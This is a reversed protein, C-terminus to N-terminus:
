KTHTLNLGHIQLCNSASRFSLIVHALWSRQTDSYWQSCITIDNQCELRNMPRSSHIWQKLKVDLSCFPTLVKLVWICQKKYSNININRVYKLVLILRRGYNVKTMAMFNIFTTMETPLLFPKTKTLRWNNRKWKKISESLEIEGSVFMDRM